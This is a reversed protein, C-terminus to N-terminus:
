TVARVLQPLTAIHPTTFLSSRATFIETCSAICNYYIFVFLLDLKSNRQGAESLLPHHLVLWFLEARLQPPAGQM